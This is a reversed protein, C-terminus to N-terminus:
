EKKPETHRTTKNIPSEEAAAVYTEISLDRSQRNIRLAVAIDRARRRNVYRCGGVSKLCCVRVRIEGRVKTISKDQLDIRAARLKGVPSPEARLIIRGGYCAARTLLLTYIRRRSWLGPKLHLYRLPPCPLAPFRGSRRSLPRFPSPPALRGAGRAMRARFRYIRPARPCLGRIFFLRRGKNAPLWRSSRRPLSRPRHM